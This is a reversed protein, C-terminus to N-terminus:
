IPQMFGNKCYFRIIPYALLEKQIRLDPLFEMNFYGVNTIGAMKVLECLCLSDKGGFFGIMLKSITAKKKLETISKSVKEELDIVM